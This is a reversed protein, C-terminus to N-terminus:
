EEGRARRHAAAEERCQREWDAVFRAKNAERRAQEAMGPTMVQLRAQEAPVKPRVRHAQKANWRAKEKRAVGSRAMDQALEEAKSM